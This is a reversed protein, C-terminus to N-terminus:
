TSTPTTRTRSARSPPNRPLWAARTGDCAAHDAEHQAVCDPIAKGPAPTDRVVMVKLGADSFRKLADTWGQAYADYSTERTQGVAPASIRNTMVVADPKAAIIARTAKDVWRRCARTHAKTEFEQDVPLSACRSALYTDVQWDNKKALTQLAPLWQGAHSNGLLAVHTKSGEM